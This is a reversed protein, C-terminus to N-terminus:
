IYKGFIIFAMAISVLNVISSRMPAEQGIYKLFEISAESNDNQDRSQRFEKVIGYVKLDIRLTVLLQIIGPIGIFLILLYSREAEGTNMCVSYVISIQLDLSGNLAVFGIIYLIYFGLIVNIVLKIEKNNLWERGAINKTIKEYRSLDCCVLIGFLVIHM